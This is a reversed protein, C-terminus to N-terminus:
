PRLLTLPNVPVGRNRIEFYLAVTGAENRGVTAIPQGRHVYAGVSVLNERNFAYASLYNKGHKVIILNGYGRIGDGSYVVAGPAAARVYSGSKAGILIGRHGLPNTSYGQIIRGRAPWFWHAEASSYTARKSVPQTNSYHRQYTMKLRQGPALTYPSQLQNAAAIGRYDLGFAWAISYITDGSRVVYFDSAARPQHWANVVPAFTNSCSTLFFTAFFIIVAIFGRAIM